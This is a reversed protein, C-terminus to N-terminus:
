TRRKQRGEVPASRRSIEELHLRQRRSVLADLGVVIVERFEAARSTASASSGRRDIRGESVGGRPSAEARSARPESPPEAAADESAAAAGGQTPAPPPAQSARPAMPRAAARARAITTPRSAAHAHRAVWTPEPSGHASVPRKGPAHSHHGASHLGRPRPTATQPHDALECARQASSLLERVLVPRYSRYECRHQSHLEECSHM